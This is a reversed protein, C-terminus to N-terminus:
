DKPYRSKVEDIVQKWADLGQHYIIDLQDPISPYSQSRKLSYSLNNFYNNYNDISQQEAQEKTLSIFSEDILHDQSGDEEYAFIENDSPRKFYKM